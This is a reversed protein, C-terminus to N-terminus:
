VNHLNEVNQKKTQKQLPFLLNMIIFFFVGPSATQACSFHNFDIEARPAKCGQVGSRPTAGPGM